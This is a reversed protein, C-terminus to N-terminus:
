GAPYRQEIAKFEAEIQTYRDPEVQELVRAELDLGRDSAETGNEDAYQDAAGGQSPGSSDGRWDSAAV